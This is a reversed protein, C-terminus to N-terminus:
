EVTDDENTEDDTESEVAEVEADAPLKKLKFGNIVSNCLVIIMCIAFMIEIIGGTGFKFVVFRFIIDVIVYLTMAAMLIPRPKKALWFVALFLFIILVAPIARIWYERMDFFQLTEPWDFYYETPLKGTLYSANYAFYYPISATYIYYETGGFLVNATNVLSLAFILLISKRGIEYRARLLIEPVPIGDNARPKM